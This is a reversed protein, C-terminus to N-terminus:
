QQFNCRDVTRTTTAKNWLVAMFPHFEPWNALKLIDGVILLHVLWCYIAEKKDSIFLFLPYQSLMKGLFFPVWLFRWRVILFFGSFTLKWM